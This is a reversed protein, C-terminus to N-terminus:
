YNITIGILYLPLIDEGMLYEKTPSPKLNRINVFLSREKWFRYSLKADAVFQTGIAEQYSQRTSFDYGKFGYGSLNFNLKNLLSSYNVIFGGFLSPINTLLPSFVYNSSINQVTAFMTIQFKKIQTKASFNIGVQSIVQDINTFSVIKGEGQNQLSPTIARSINTYFFQTNIELKDSYQWLWNVEANKSVMLNLATNPQYNRSTVNLPVQLNSVLQQSSFYSHYANPGKNATTYGIRLTNKKGIKVSTALTINFIAKTTPESFVDYRVAGFLKWSDKVAMESRVAVSPNVLTAKGKLSESYNADTIEPKKEDYSTNNLHFSPILSIKNIQLPYEVNANLQTTSFQYGNYGLALNQEGTQYNLQFAIKKMKGNLFLYYQRLKKITQAFAGVEMNIDQSFTNQTAMTAQLYSEQSPQYRVTANVNYNENALTTYLSTERANAQYFLLSDSITERGLPLIFYNDKFRRNSLYNASLRFSLKESVGYQLSINSFYTSNNGGQVSAQAQLGDAARVQKSFIHIIGTLANQGYLTGLPATLVEIKDIDHIGVPIADWHVEGNFYQNLPVNDLLLLLNSEGAEQLFGEQLLFAFGKLRVDYHGNGKQRVLVNPLLRLAEAIHIVGANQILEKTILSVSWMADEKKEVKKSASYVRIDEKVQRPLVLMDEEVSFILPKLLATSDADEQAYVATLLGWYIMLFTLLQKM